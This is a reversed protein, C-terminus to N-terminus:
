LLEQNNPPQTPILSLSARIPVDGNHFGCGELIGEEKKKGEYKRM